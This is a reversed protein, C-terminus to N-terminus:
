HSPNRSFTTWIDLLALLLDTIFGAAKGKGIKAYFLNVVKNPLAPTITPSENDRVDPVHRRSAQFMRHSVAAASINAFSKVNLNM